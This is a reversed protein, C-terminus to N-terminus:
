KGPLRGRLAGELRLLHEKMAVGGSGSFGTMSGDAGVVRHCPYLVPFPNAAMARGVAQAGGPRGLRKAMEGYTRTSGSPIRRLEDLASKQFHTLPELDLPLDPWRPDDGAEYRALARGLADALPTPDACPKAEDAWHVRVAAIRGGKWCLSLALRDGRIWETRECQM